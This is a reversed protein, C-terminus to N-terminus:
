YSVLNQTIFREIHQIVEDKADPISEAVWVATEYLKATNVRLWKKNESLAYLLTTVAIRKNGNQFPHNKNMLYFMVSVKKIFSPYLDKGDFTQFPIALCSELTNPYRTKFEPIPQNFSFLKRTVVFAIHEVEFVTIAKM